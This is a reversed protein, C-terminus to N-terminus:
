SRSSSETKSTGRVKKAADTDEVNTHGAFMSRVQAEGSGRYSSVSDSLSRLANGTGVKDSTYNITFDRQIGIGSAEAFADQNAGLYTFQWKDESTKEEILKKLADRKIETSSNEEGDTLIVFLVQEPRKKTGKFTELFTATSAITSAVADLLATCGGPVYTRTTLPEVEKIPANEYLTQFPPTNFQVLTITAKGPQKIQDRLFQNFGGIMDSKVSMMSGSRDLVIAIHTYVGKKTSKKPSAKTKPM